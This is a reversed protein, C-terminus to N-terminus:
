IDVAPDIGGIGIIVPIVASQAGDRDSFLGAAKGVQVLASQADYFEVILNGARDWKTGKVLHGYGDQILRELDVTGDPQLYQAQAARAQEALRLLVEDASMATEAIREQIAAKIEERALLDSATRRDRKYGARRAAEAGNWCRLYEEVFKRRRLTWVFPKANGTQQRM